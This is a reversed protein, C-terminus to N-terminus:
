SVYKLIEDVTVKYMHISVDHKKKLSANLTSGSITMFTFGINGIGVRYPRDGVCKSCYCPDKAKCHNATRMKVTKGTYSGINEPTLMKLKGNEVIWRYIFNEAIDPHLTVNDLDTSGCDSGRPLIRIRQFMGNYKKANTGSDQTSVGTSYASTVVSDAIKPMDEKSIGIDYNSTVVKYGTPSEGTNDQIAGKMVMITKYQNYPDIGSGSDFLAIAPDNKKRMESLAKDVVAREVEVAAAPINAKLEAEKEKLMQKRLKAAEPPLTMVTESLSTNIIFAMPGGLLWQAADIYNAYQDWTIDGETLAKSLQSEIKENVKGTVVKNVYGFIELDEFLIKNELFIGLSTITGPKVFKSDEPGIVMLDGVSFRCGNNKKSYAFLKVLKNTDITRFDKGCTEMFEKKQSDTLMREAM